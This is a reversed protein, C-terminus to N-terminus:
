HGAAVLELSPVRLGINTVAVSVKIRKANLAGLGFQCLTSQIHGQHFDPSLRTTSGFPCISVKGARSKALNQLLAVSLRRLRVLAPIAIKWFRLPVLLAM